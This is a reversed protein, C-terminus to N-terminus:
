NMTVQSAPVWENTSVRYMKEGNITATKDTVFASNAALGRDSKKGNDHYLTAEENITLVGSVPTIELTQDAAVWENTSVRYSKNGNIYAYRDAQWDTTQALGRNSSDGNLNSLKKISDSNTQVTGSYEFYEAVDSEKVWEDDGVQYYTVGNVVSKKTTTFDTVGSLTKDSTKNGNADYIAISDAKKSTLLMEDIESVDGTNSGNNNGGSNNGGTNNDKEVTVDATGTIGPFDKSTYTVQYDGETNTNLIGTNVDFDELTLEDGFPDTASVFGLSDNWTDGIKMTVPKTVVNGDGITYPQTITMSVDKDVGNINITEVFNITLTDGATIDSVTVVNSKDDVGVEADSGKISATADSITGGSSLYDNLDIEFSNKSLEESDESITQPTMNLATIATMNDLASFDIIHNESIKLDTINTLSKLPTIDSINDGEMHLYTLNTMNELPSLDILNPNNNISLRTLNLNRLPTLDTIKNFGLDLKTIKTAYQLGSIDTVQSMVLSLGLGAPDTLESLSEPTIESEDSFYKGKVLAAKLSESIGNEDVDDSSTKSTSNEVNAAQITPVNIMSSTLLAGAALGTIIMSVSKKM